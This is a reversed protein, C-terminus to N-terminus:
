GTKSRLKKVPGHTPSESNRRRREEVTHTQAEVGTSTSPVPEEEIELNESNGEMELKGHGLTPRQHSSSGGPSKVLQVLEQINEPRVRCCGGVWQALGYRHSLENPSVHHKEQELMNQTVSWKSVSRAWDGSSVNNPWVWHGTPKPNDRHKKQRDASSRLPTELWIEGSNPYAILLKPQKGKPRLAEPHPHYGDDSGAVTDRLTELGGVNALAQGILEHPISCNVGIGIISDCSNLIAAVKHLPEGHATTQGDRSSVSLWAVTDEPLQRMVETIAQVEILAPITEWALLDVGASVLIKARQLHFKTLEELSIHDAYAGTYESGDHLLIAYPGLSGAILPYPRDAKNYAHTVTQIIATEKRLSQKYEKWFEEVARRALTVAKKMLAEAVAVEVNLADSLTQPAAQYTNTSIVDCGSRLYSKHIDLVLAPDNQLLLCSWAKHTDIEYDSRIAAETGFGGDLIRIENLWQVAKPPLPMGWRRRKRTRHEDTGNIQERLAQYAAPLDIHRNISEATSHWVEQLLGSIRDDSQSLIKVSGFDFDHGPSSEHTAVLSLKDKPRVALEHEHM